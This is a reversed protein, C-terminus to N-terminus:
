RVRKLFGGRCLTVEFKEWSRDVEFDNSEHLFEEVATAPSDCKWEASDELNTDFVVIYHGVPVLDRFNRLEALVHNKHHDSDLFVHLKPHDGVIQKVRRSAEPSSSDCTLLRIRKSLPHDALTRKASSHDIDVSIVQGHMLLEFISAYFVASGGLSTGTEVVFDPKTEFLLQQLTILDNPNQQVPIGLWM